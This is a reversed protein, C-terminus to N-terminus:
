YKTGSGLFIKTDIKKTHITNQVQNNNIRHIMELHVIRGTVRSCKEKKILCICNGFVRGFKRRFKNLYRYVKRITYTGVNNDDIGKGTNNSTTIM